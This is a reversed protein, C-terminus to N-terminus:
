MKIRKRVHSIFKKIGKSVKKEGHKEEQTLRGLAQTAARQESEKKSRGRGMGYSKGKIKVEM